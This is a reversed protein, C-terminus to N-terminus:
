STASSAPPVGPSQQAVANVQADIIAEIDARVLRIREELTPAPTPRPTNAKIM